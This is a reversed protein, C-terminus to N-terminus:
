WPEEDYKDFMEFIQDLEYQYYDGRYKKAIKTGVGEDIYAKVTAIRTLTKQAEDKEKGSGEKYTKVAPKVYDSTLNGKVDSLNYGADYYDKIAKKYDTGKDIADYIKKKAETKAEKEAREAAKEAQVEAVEQKASYYSYSPDVAKLAKLVNDDIDSDIGHAKNYEITSGYKEVLGEVIDYPKKGENILRNVSGRIDGGENIEGYLKSMSYKAPSWDEVIEKAERESHGAAMYAKVAKEELAKMTATDNQEKAELYDNKYLGSVRSEYDSLNGGEELVDQLKDTIKDQSRNTKVANMVDAYKNASQKKGWPDDSIMNHITMVERSVNYLPVGTLTSFAKAYTKYEQYSLPQTFDGQARKQWATLVNLVDNVAQDGMNANQGYNSEGQIISMIKDSIDKVVPIRNLPNLNDVLNKKFYELWTELYDDDKYRMGDILAQAISNAVDTIFLVAIAKKTGKWKLVNNGYKQYDDMLSKVAMNYSKTPEAMFATRIKDLKDNSRMWQSKQLTSDVVQTRAIVENFRENVRERFEKDSLDENKYKAAQEKEVATYLASWTMDDAKGALYMSAETLRDRLGIQGTIIEDMSRGLSTEYFGQTKWWVTPSIEKIRSISKSAVGPLSKSLTAPSLLYKPSIENLARFYATPQQIVVRLNAGIAAAKYGGILIDPLAKIDSAKERGNLDKLFKKLYDVGARDTRGLNNNIAQQVTRINNFDKNNELEETINYNMWRITDKIAPAYGHYAAMNEVHNEFVSFIDKIMIPNGAFENVNKTFGSREISNLTEITDSNNTVANTNADTTIPFYNSDTFKEYGYMKKSAENGQKACEDAMYKQMADAVAKEEDTLVSVIQAVDLNSLHVADNQQYKKGKISIADARVGGKYHVVAQERKNLEYLSMIQAKTLKIHGDAVPFTYVEASDGRWNKFDKSKVDKLVDQMYEQAKKIDAVKTDFGNNLGRMIAQGGEGQMYFFTDPTMMDVTLMKLISDTTKTHEKLKVKSAKEMTSNAWDSIEGRQAVAQNQRNVAFVINRLTVKLINFDALSLKNVSAVNKNRKLMDTFITALTPDINEIFSRMDSHEFTDGDKAQNLLDKMLNMRDVWSRANQSGVGVGIANKYRRLAEEQTDAEINQYQPTMRGDKEVSHTYVRIVWKGDKNQKVDPTIFDLANAFELIPEVMESPVHNKETPKNIWNILRKVEKAVMDKEHKLEKREKSKQADKKNKAKLEKIQEAYADTRAKDMKAISVKLDDYRKRYMDKIDKEFEKKQRNVEKVIQQSKEDSQESFYEEVIRMALDRSADELSGGYSNEVTPRLAQLTDYLALPQDTDPISEDLIGGTREVLESWISDLSSGEKSFTIPMMANAFTRYTGFTGKIEEIQQDSLKIQYGKLTDTFDKYVEEGVKSTSQELVPRSVETLIRMMDNYNVHETDNMYAFVKELQDAFTKHKITSKYENKLKTAIKNIATKNITEGNKKLAEIGEELISGTTIFTETADDVGGLMLEDLDIYDTIFGEDDVNLSYRIDDLGTPNDNNIDKIQNSYFPIYVTHGQGGGKGGLDEIGDYGEEKLFDTVADPIVTWAHTTGNEIDDRVRNIWSEIPMNSKDWMDASYMDLGYQSQDTNNWWDEFAKIFDEGAEVAKFPNTINIYTEYVKEDRFDPDLYEVDDLGVLSLVEKFREEQDYLDGQELWADVLAELYNNKHENLLYKDFNGLGTQINEDYIIEEYDDDFAVHPAKKRIEVRKSMPLKDWADGISMDQGDINMRFQTYYSDYREDRSISTDAKDKSYNTAIDRNDTFFAMPGSTARAPDFFYGVRDARGTGHFLVKLNGNEDVTKADKFYSQQGESLSNGENDVDLSNKTDNKNLFQDPIYEGLEEANPNSKIEKLLDSVNYDFASLSIHPDNKQYDVESVEAKKITPLTIAMHIPNVNNDKMKFVSLKVPVIGERDNFASFMVYTKDISRNIKHNPKRNHYEDESHVELLMANKVVDDFCTLMEGFKYMKDPMKVKAQHSSSIDVNNGSFNITFDLQPNEHEKIIGLRAALKKASVQAKSLQMEKLNDLEQESVNGTKVSSVIHISKDKLAEYRQEDSMGQKIDVNLSYFSKESNGARDQINKNDRNLGRSKKTQERIDYEENTKYDNSNYIRICGEGNINEIIERISERKLGKKEYYEIQDAVTNISNHLLGKGEPDIDYIYQSDIYHDSIKAVLVRANTSGSGSSSVKIICSGKKNKVLTTNDKRYKDAIEEIHMIETTGFVKDAFGENLGLSNKTADGIASKGVQANRNDIAAQLTSIYKNILDEKNKLEAAQTKKEMVSMDSNNFMNKLATFARDFFDKISDVIKQMKSPSYNDNLFKTFAEQGKDSNMLGVFMSNAMEDTIEEAAINGYANVHKQYEENFSNSGVSEVYANLIGKKLSKYESPAFDKMYHGLEHFSSAVNNASLKIKGESLSYSARENGNGQEAADTLEIDLGITKALLDLGAIQDESAEVSSNNIVRGIKGTNPDNKISNDLSNISDTKAQNLGADYMARVTDKGLIDSYVKNDENLQTEFDLNNQGARFFRNFAVDFQAASVKDKNQEYLDKYDTQAEDSPLYKANEEIYKTQDGQYQNRIDEEAAQVSGRHVAEIDENTNKSIEDVYRNYADQATAINQEIDNRDSMSLKKDNDVKDAYEQINAKAERGEQTETNINDAIYQVPNKAYRDAKEKTINEDYDQNELRETFTKQIDNTRQKNADANIKGAVVGGAGMIGGSIAGSIADTAVEKWFDKEAANIAEERSLGDEMYNNVNISFASKGDKGMIMYDSIRNLLDSAAEESGEIGAQALWDMVINKGFKTGKAMSWLHDLSIKETGIETAGSAIGYLQADRDSVGREKAEKYASNYAQAGFSALALPESIQGLTLANLASEGTSVGIQYAKQALPHENTIGNEVAQQIGYETANGEAKFPSNVDVGLGSPHKEFNAVVGSFGRRPSSIIDKAANAAVRYKKYWDPMNDNITYESNTVDQAQSNGVRSAYDLYEDIKNDSWGLDKLESRAEEIAQNGTFVKNSQDNELNRMAVSSLSPVMSNTLGLNKEQSGKIARNLISKEKESLDNIKGQSYLTKEKDTASNFNQARSLEYSDKLYENLTDDDWGTAEKIQANYKEPDGAFLNNAAKVSQKLLDKINDDLKDIKSKSARLENTNIGHVKEELEPMMAKIEADEKAKRELKNMISNDLLNKSNSIDFKNKELGAAEAQSRMAAENMYKNYREQIERQKEENGAMSAKIAQYRNRSVDSLAEASDSTGNLYEDDKRRNREYVKAKIESYRSM